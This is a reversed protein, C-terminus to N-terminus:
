TSPWSWRLSPQRHRSTCSYRADAPYHGIIASPQIVLCPSTGVLSVGLRRADPVIRCTLPLPVPGDRRALPTGTHHTGPRRDGTPSLGTQTDPARRNVSTSLARSQSHFFIGDQGHRHHPSRDTTRPEHGGVPRLRNRISRRTHRGDPPAVLISQGSPTSDLTADTSRSASGIAQTSRDPRPRASSGAGTRRDRRRGSRGDAM